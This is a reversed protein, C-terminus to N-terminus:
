QMEALRRYYARETKGTREMWERVREQRNPHTKQLERLLEHEAAKRAARSEPTMDEAHRVAVLHEEITATVLDRWDSETADDKWQQYTALAKNFFLRLDFRCGLRIMEAMLHRAVTVAADPAIGKVGVSAAGLMLAGLQADTPDYNVTNVRSKFADLLDGDHLERNTICIVGGSFAVKKTGGRSRYKV